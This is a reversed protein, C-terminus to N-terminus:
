VMLLARCMVSLSVAVRSWAPGSDAKSLVSNSLVTESICRVRFPSIRKFSCFPTIVPSPSAGHFGGGWPLRSLDGGDGGVGFPDLRPLGGILLKPHRGVAPHAGVRFFLDVAVFVLQGVVSLFDAPVRGPFHCADV